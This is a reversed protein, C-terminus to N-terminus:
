HELIHCDKNIGQLVGMCFTSADWVLVVQSPHEPITAEKGSKPISKTRFVNAVMNM